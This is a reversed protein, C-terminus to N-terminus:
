INELFSLDDIKNGIIKNNAKTNANDKTPEKEKKILHKIYRKVEEDTINYGQFDIFSCGQKLIGHGNGKLQEGGEKDLIIISNKTDETRFCIKNGINSKIIPSIITRDPRQCSIYLFIGAARSLCILEELAKIGKKHQSLVIFEEIFIFQYKMKEKSRKNYDALNTVEKEQFLKYRRRCEELTNLILELAEQVEYTYNIVQQCKRYAQLEVIKIDILIVEIQEATFMNLISTLISKTCVSKGSGTSGNCLAHPIKIPNWYVVKDNYTEGIPIRFTLADEKTPLRYPINEKLIPFTRRYEALGGENTQIKFIKDFLVKYGDYIIDFLIKLLNDQDQDM